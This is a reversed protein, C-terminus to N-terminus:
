PYPTRPGHELHRVAAIRVDYDPYTFVVSRRGPRIRGAAPRGAREDAPNDPVGPVRLEPPPYQQGEFPLGRDEKLRTFGVRLENITSPNVTFTDGISIGEANIFTDGTRSGGGNALGPLPSPTETHQNNYAFRGFLQNRPSFNHDVRLNTSHVKDTFYATRIYNSRLAGPVNPDPYLDMFAKAVPDFRSSPNPQGSVGDARQRQESGHDAPDYITFDSASFDGNRQAPLPM